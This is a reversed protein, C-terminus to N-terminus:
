TGKPKMQSRCTLSTPHPPGPRTPSPGREWTVGAQAASSRLAEQKPEEGVGQPDRGVRGGAQLPRRVEQAEEKCSELSWLLQM